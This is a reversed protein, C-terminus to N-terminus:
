SMLLVRSVTLMDCSPHALLFAPQVPHVEQTRASLETSQKRFALQHCGDTTRDKIRELVFDLRKEHVTKTQQGWTTDSAAPWPTVIVPLLVNLLQFQGFATIKAAVTIVVM